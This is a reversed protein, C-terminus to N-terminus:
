NCTRAPWDGTTKKHAEIGERLLELDTRTLYPASHPYINNRYNAWACLYATASVTVTTALCLLLRPVLRRFESPTPM